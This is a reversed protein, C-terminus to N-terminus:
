AHQYNFSYLCSVLNHYVRVSERDSVSDSTAVAPLGTPEPGLIECNDDIIIPQKVLIACFGSFNVRKACLFCVQPYKQSMIVLFGDVVDM